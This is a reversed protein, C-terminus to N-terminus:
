NRVLRMSHTQHTSFTRNDTTVPRFHFSMTPRFTISNPSLSSLASPFCLFIMTVIESVCKKEEKWAVFVNPVFSSYSYPSSQPPGHSQDKDEERELFFSM